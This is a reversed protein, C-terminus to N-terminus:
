DSLALVEAREKAINARVPALASILDPDDQWERWIADESLPGQAAIGPSQANYPWGNEIAHLLAQIAREKEGKAAALNAEFMKSTMNQSNDNWLAISEEALGFLQRGEEERGVRILAYGVYTSIQPQFHHTRLQGRAFDALAAASGFAEDYYRVLQAERGEAVLGTAGGIVFPLISFFREGDIGLADMEAESPLSGTLASNAAGAMGASPMAPPSIGLLHSQNILQLSLVQRERPSVVPMAARAARIFESQDGRRVAIRADALEAQWPEAAAAGIIRDLRDAEEADGFSRVYYSAQWSRDWLPDLEVLRRMAIPINQYHMPHDAVHGLWLWAEADGPDLELARNLMDVRADSDQDILGMIKLAEISNPNLALAQRALQRANEAMAEDGAVGYLLGLAKAQAALGASFDGNREVIQELLEAARQLQEPNRSEIMGLTTLYLQFDAEPIRADAIHDAKQLGMSAVMEEVARAPLTAASDPSSAFSDQWTVAGTESDFIELNLVTREAGVDISGRLLMDMNLAQGIEQLSKDQALLQRASNPSTIELGSRSALETQLETALGLAFFEDTGESAELPLMAISIEDGDNSPQLLLWGLVALVSLALVGLTAPVFSGRRVVGHAQRSDEAIAPSAEHAGVLIRYGVKPITEVQVAEGTTERLATRLLSIVRNISADGVIRGDWCQRILDDKSLTRMGARALAVLVVMVKPELTADALTGSILRRSPAVSLPGLVFDDVHALDVHGIASNNDEFGEGKVSQDM